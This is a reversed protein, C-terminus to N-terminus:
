EETDNNQACIRANQYDPWTDEVNRNYPDCCCGCHGLITCNNYEKSTVHDASKWYEECWDYTM